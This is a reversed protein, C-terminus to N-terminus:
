DVATWDVKADIKAARAEAARNRERLCAGIRANYWAATPAYERGRAHALHESSADGASMARAVRGMQQLLHTMGRACLWKTLWGPTGAPVEQRLQLSFRLASAAIPEILIDICVPVRVALAKGPYARRPHPPLHIAPLDAQRVSRMCLLLQGERLNDCCWCSAVIDALGFLHRLELHVVKEAAHLDAVTSGRAALPFWHQYLSATRWLHVVDAPRVDELTAEMRMTLLGLAERRMVRAGGAGASVVTWGAESRDRLGRLADRCASARQRVTEACDLERLKAAAAKEGRGGAKQGLRRDIGVLLEGAELYRYDSALAGLAAVAADLQGKQLAALGESLTDPGSVGAPPSPVKRSVRKRQATATRPSDPLVSAQVRKWLDSPRSVVSAASPDGAPGPPLNEKEKGLQPTDIAVATQM